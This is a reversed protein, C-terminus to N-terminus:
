LSVNDKVIKSSILFFGRIMQFSAASTMTLATYMLSTGCMDCLSAPIMLYCHKLEFPKKAPAPAEDDATDIIDISM